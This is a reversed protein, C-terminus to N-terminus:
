VRNRTPASAHCGGPVGRRADETRVVKTFRLDIEKKKFLLLKTGSRVANRLAVGDVTVFFSMARQNLWDIYDNTDTKIM